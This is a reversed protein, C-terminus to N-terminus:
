LEKFKLMMSFLIDRFKFGLATPSDQGLEVENGMMEM